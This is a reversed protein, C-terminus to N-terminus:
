REFRAFKNGKSPGKRFLRFLMVTTAASLAYWTVAYTAHQNRLEITAPRGLPIGHTLMSKMEGANGEFTADVLVPQSGATSAMQAIDAFQFERKEPSNVPSFMNRQEQDRLMGVVHQTGEVLSEPRSRQDKLTMSVHGRNVLITSSPDNEDRILPTVVSYGLVSEKTRPGLLIENAHDFRGSVEVKRYAFEPIAATDIKAPLRMPPKALKEDLEDILNMKWNLRKVQWTGLGFTLIPM